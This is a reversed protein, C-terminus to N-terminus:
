RKGFMGMRAAKADEDGARLDDIDIGVGGSGEIRPGAHAAVVIWLWENRAHGGM